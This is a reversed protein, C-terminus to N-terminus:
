VIGKQEDLRAQLAEVQKLAIMTKMDREIEKRSLKQSVFVRPRYTGGSDVSYVGPMRSRTKSSTAAFLLDFVTVLRGGEVEWRKEYDCKSVDIELNEWKVAYKKFDDYLSDPVYCVLQCVETQTGVPVSRTWIVNSPVKGNRHLYSLVHHAVARIKYANDHKDQEQFEFSFYLYTNFPTGKKKAFLWSYGADIRDIHDIDYSHSLEAERKEDIHALLAKEKITLEQPKSM